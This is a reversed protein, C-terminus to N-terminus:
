DINKNKRVRANIDEKLLPAKMSCIYKDYKYTCVGELYPIEEQLEEKEKIDLVFGDDEALQKLFIPSILLYNSPLVKNLYNEFYLKKDKAKNINEWDTFVLAVKEELFDKDKYIIAPMSKYSITAFSLDMSSVSMMLQKANHLNDFDYYSFTTEPDKIADIISGKLDQYLLNYFFKTSDVVKSIIEEKKSKYKEEKKSDKLEERLKKLEELKQM